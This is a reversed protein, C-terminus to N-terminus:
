NIKLKTICVLEGKRTQLFVWKVAIRNDCGLLTKLLTKM